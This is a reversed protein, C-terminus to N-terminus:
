KSVKINNHIYIAKPIIGGRDKYIILKKTNGNEGISNVDIFHCRGDYVLQDNVFAKCMSKDLLYNINNLGICMGLCILGSIIVMIVIGTLAIIFDEM